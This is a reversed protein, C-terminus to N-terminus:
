KSITYSSTNHLLFKMYCYLHTIPNPKNQNQMQPLLSQQNKWTVTCVSNSIILLVFIVGNNGPIKNCYFQLDANSFPLTFLM